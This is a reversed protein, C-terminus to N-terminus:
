LPNVMTVLDDLEELEKTKVQVNSHYRLIEYVNYVSNKKKTIKKWKQNKEECGLKKMEERKVTSKRNCLRLPRQPLRHWHSCLSAVDEDEVIKKDM